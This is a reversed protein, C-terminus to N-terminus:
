EAEPLVVEAEPRELNFANLKHLLFLNGAMLVVSVLIVWGYPLGAESLGVVLGNVLLEVGIAALLYLKNRRLFVQLVLLTVALHMVLAALRELTAALPIYAPVAWAEALQAVFEPDLTTTASNYDVNVLMTVFTVLLPLGVLMVSEAGGYGVGVGYAANLTDLKEPLYRMGAWRIVVGLVASLVISLGLQVTNFASETLVLSGNAVLSNFGGLLLSTLAQMLLYGVVGYTFIRWPVNFKRNLWFGAGIPLVITALLAVVIALGLWIM